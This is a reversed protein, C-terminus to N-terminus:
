SGYRAVLNRGLRLLEDRVEQPEIVEAVGAFGSFGSALERVHHGRAEVEVWEDDIATSIRVREGLVWAVMGVADRRVRARAVM